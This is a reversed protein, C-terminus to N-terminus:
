EDDEIVPIDDDGDEEEEKMETSSSEKNKKEQELRARKKALQKNRPQNQPKQPIVHDPAFINCLSIVEKKSVLLHTSVLGRWAALFMDRYERVKLVFCGPELVRLRSKIEESEFDEVKPDEQTLLTKLEPIGIEVIRRSGLAPLVWRLSEM